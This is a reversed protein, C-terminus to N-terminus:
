YGRLRGRVLGIAEARSGAGLKAFLANVHSKVTAVSIFFSAAIEASSAG